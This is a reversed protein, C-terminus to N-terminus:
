LSSSSSSTNKVILSPVCQFPLPLLPPLRAATNGVVFSLSQLPGQGAWVARPLCGRCLHSADGLEVLGSSAPAMEGPAQLFPRVTLPLAPLSSLHRPSWTGVKDWRLWQGIATDLQPDGTLYPAHLLNSNLDDDANEAMASVCTQPGSPRAFVGSGPARPASM